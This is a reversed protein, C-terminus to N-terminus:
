ISEGESDSDKISGPRPNMANKLACWGGKRLAQACDKTKLWTYLFGATFSDGCGITNVAQIPTVLERYMTGRESAITDKVGRTVVIINNLEISKQQIKKILEDEALPFVFDFTGCFEEENIKIITPTCISLTMLLDKGHYDAMIPINKKFAENCLRACLDEPWVNPRSGAFMFADAEVLFDNTIQVIENSLRSWYNPDDAIHVLPESVVLETTTAKTRDLLTYCSRTKGETLVPAVILGDEKALRMYYAANVKGLPCISIVSDKELQSLVRSANMAKGSADVRYGKSRNVGGISLNEFAITKQLTSSLGVSIIKM